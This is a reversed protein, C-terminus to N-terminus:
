IPLPQGRGTPSLEPRLFVALMLFPLSLLLNVTADRRVYRVLFYAYAMLFSSTPAELMLFPLYYFVVPLILLALAVNLRYRGPNLEWLLLALLNAFLLSFFLIYYLPFHEGFAAMFPIFVYSQIVRYCLHLVTDGVVRIPEGYKLIAYAPPLYYLFTDSSKGVFDTLLLKEM